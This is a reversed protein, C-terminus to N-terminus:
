IHIADLLLSGIRSVECETIEVLGTDSDINSDPYEKDDPARKLKVLDLRELTLIHMGLSVTLFQRNPNSLEDLTPTPLQFTKRAEYFGLDRVSVLFEIDFDTLEQLTFLLKKQVSYNEPPLDVTNKVFQALYRNRENSLSRSAQVMADEFIDRYFKNDKILKYELESIREGVEHLFDAMRDIRQNPITSGIVESVLGGVVPIMGASGKALAILYDNPSEKLSEYSM